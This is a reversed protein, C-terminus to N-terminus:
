SKEEELKELGQSGDTHQLFPRLWEFSGRARGGSSVAQVLILDDTQAQRSTRLCGNICIYCLAVTILIATMIGSLQTNLACRRACPLKSRLTM